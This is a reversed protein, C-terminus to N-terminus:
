CAVANRELRAEIRALREALKERRALWDQHLVSMIVANHPKGQKFVHQRLVGEQTFGFAKNSNIMRHNMELVECMVKNLRLGDFAEVLLGFEALAGVGTGRLDARAIYMASNARRHTWDIDYYNGLGVAEGQHEFVWYRRRPDHLASKFWRAHGDVTIPDDNYMYEAVDSQNRWNRVMEEDAARMERLKM